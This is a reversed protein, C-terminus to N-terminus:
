RWGPALYYVAIIAGIYVIPFMALYYAARAEGIRLMFWAIGGLLAPTGWLFVFPYDFLEPRSSMSYDSAWSMPAGVFTQMIQWALTCALAFLINVAVHLMASSRFRHQRTGEYILESM